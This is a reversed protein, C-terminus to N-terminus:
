ADQVINMAVHSKIIVKQMGIRKALNLLIPGAINANLRGRPGDQEEKRSLMMLIAVENYSAAQLTQQEEDTLKLEYNLGYETPDVLTFTVKPEDCSELWYATVNNEEKHFIHYTTYKEFGPIGLPFTFVKESDHNIQASINGESTM